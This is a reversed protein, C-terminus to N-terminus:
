FQWNQVTAIQEQTLMGSSQLRSLLDAREERRGEARGERRGEARSEEAKAALKDAILNDIALSM